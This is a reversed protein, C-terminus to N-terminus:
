MKYCGSWFALTLQFYIFNHIDHSQDFYLINQMILHFVFKRETQGIVVKSAPPIQM